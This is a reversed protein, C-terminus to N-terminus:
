QVTGPVPQPNRALLAYRMYFFESTPITFDSFLFELKEWGDETMQGGDDTM